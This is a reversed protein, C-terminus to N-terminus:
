AEPKKLSAFSIVRTWSDVIKPRGRKTGKADKDGTIKDDYGEIPDRQFESLEEEVSDVM